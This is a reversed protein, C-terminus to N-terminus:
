EDGPGFVLTVNQGGFGYSNTVAHRCAVHRAVHPVYDLDCEPSPADCNLTPPVVGDRLALVTAVAGVAGAAAISHGLAGKVSSVPIEHARAGLVQKIVATEIRDNIETGTGHACVYDVKGPDLGADALARRLALEAGRGDPHTDTTRYADCACAYGKLEALPTVGRNTAHQWSELVLVAAGEAIVFGDRARDFPRCAATPRDNATSLAGLLAFGVLAWPHIISHTGGAFMVDCEGSRIVDAAEAIAQAGAACATLCNYNPGSAGLTAAVHGAPAAPDYERISEAQVMAAAERMFRDLHFADGDIVAAVILALRPVVM